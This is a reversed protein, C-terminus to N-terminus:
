QRSFMSMLTESSCSVFMAPRATAMSRSTFCYWQLAAAMWHQFARCPSSPMMGQAAFASRLSLPMGTTQSVSIWPAMVARQDLGRGVVARAAEECVPGYAMGVDFVALKQLM